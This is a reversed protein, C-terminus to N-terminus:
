SELNLISKSDQIMFESSRDSLGSLLQFILILLIKKRHATLFGSSCDFLGILLAFAGSLM